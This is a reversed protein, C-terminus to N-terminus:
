YSHLFFKVQAIASAVVAEFGPINNNYSSVSARRSRTDCEFNEFKKKIAKLCM